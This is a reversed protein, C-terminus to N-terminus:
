KEVVFLLWFDGSPATGMCLAFVRQPNLQTLPRRHNIAYVGFTSSPFTRQAGIVQRKPNPCSGKQNTKLFLRSFLFLCFHIYIWQAGQHIQGFTFAAFRVVCHLRVRGFGCGVFM